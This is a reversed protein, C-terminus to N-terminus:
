NITQATEAPLKLTGGAGDASLTEKIAAQTTANASDVVPRLKKVLESKERVWSFGFMLVANLAVAIVIFLLLELALLFAAIQGVTALIQEWPAPGSALIYSMM